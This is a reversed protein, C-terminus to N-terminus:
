RRSMWINPLVTNPTGPASNSDSSAAARAWAPAAVSASSGTACSRSTTCAYLFTKWAWVPRSKGCAGCSCSNRATVDTKWDQFASRATSYRRWSRMGCSRPVATLTM